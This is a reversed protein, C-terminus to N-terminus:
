AQLGKLTMEFLAARYDCIEGTTQGMEHQIILGSIMGVIIQATKLVDNTKLEGRDIGWQLVKAVSEVWISAKNKLGGVLGSLRFLNQQDVQVFLTEVFGKREEHYEVFADFMRHLAEVASSPNQLALDMREKLMDLGKELIAIYIQEKSKFYTYITGKGLEARAAIEEVTTLDFGKTEFLQRATELILERRLGQERARRKAVTM